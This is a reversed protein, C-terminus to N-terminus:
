KADREKIFQLTTKEDAAYSEMKKLAQYDYSMKQGMRKRQNMLGRAAATSAYASPRKRASDSMQDMQESTIDRAPLPPNSGLMLAYIWGIKKDYQIQQWTGKKKISKVKTGQELVMMKEGSLSPTALMPATKSQVFLDMCRASGPLLFLLGFILPFLKQM